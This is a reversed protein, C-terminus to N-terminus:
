DCLDFDHFCVYLEGLWDSYITFGQTFVQTMSNM